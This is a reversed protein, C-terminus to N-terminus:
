CKYFNNDVGFFHFMRRQIKIIYNEQFNYLLIGKRMCNIGGNKYM